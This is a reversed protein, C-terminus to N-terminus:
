QKESFQVNSRRNCCSIHKVLGYSPGMSPTLVAPTKKHGAVSNCHADEAHILAGGLPTQSVKQVTATDNEIPVCKSRTGRRM